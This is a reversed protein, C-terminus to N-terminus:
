VPVGEMNTGTAAPIVPMNEELWTDLTNAILTSEDRAPVAEFSRDLFTQVTAAPLVIRTKAANRPNLKVLVTSNEWPEVRVESMGSPAFYGRAFTRRSVIWDVPEDADPYFRLTVAAPEAKSYLLSIPVEDFSAKAYGLGFTREEVDFAPETETNTIPNVEPNM